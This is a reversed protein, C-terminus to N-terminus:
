RRPLRCQRSHCPRYELGAHARTGAVGVAVLRALLGGNGRLFGLEDERVDRNNITTYKM